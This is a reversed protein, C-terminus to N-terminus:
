NLLKFWKAEYLHIQQTSEAELRKNKNNNLMLNTSDIFLRCFHQNTTILIM